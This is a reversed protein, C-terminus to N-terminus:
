PRPRRRDAQDGGVAGGLERFFLVEQLRAIEAPGYLRYGAESRQQPVVLGIQDYHHLTRVSIGTLRAIEGVTAPGEM